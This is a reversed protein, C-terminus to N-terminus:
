ELSQSHNDRSNSDLNKSKEFPQVESKKEKFILDFFRKGHYQAANELLNVNM